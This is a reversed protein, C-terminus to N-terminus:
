KYKHNILLLSKLQQFFFSIILRQITMCKITPNTAIADFIPSDTLTSSFTTKLIKSEKRTIENAVVIKANKEENVGYPYTSGCNVLKEHLWLNASNVVFEGTEEINILTDKKGGDPKRAISISISLPNSCVGNFFSFPALNGQGKSNLTSVLAIPRPVISSILLKYLEETKLEEPKIQIIKDSLM